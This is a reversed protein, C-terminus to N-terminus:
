QLKRRMIERAIINVYDTLDKTGNLYLKNGFIHLISIIGLDEKRQGRKILIQIGKYDTTYKTRQDSLATSPDRSRSIHSIDISVGKEQLRQIFASPIDIEDDAIIKVPTTNFKSM